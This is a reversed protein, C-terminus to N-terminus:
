VELYDLEKPKLTLGTGEDYYEPNLVMVGGYDTLADGLIQVQYGYVCVTYAKVRHLWDALFEPSPTGQGALEAILEAGEAYPVVVDRTNSDFVSFVSGAWRFAQNLSFRGAFPSSDDWCRPNESLLEFLTTNTDEVPFDQAGQKASAYLKRYYQRISEDYSLDNQFREPNRRFRGLLYEAADKADKIDPLRGLEKGEETQLANSHHELIISDDDLYERIVAANQELISLLPSTFILRRKGWKRAHALAYRLSSLTKGAGTPVNLRYVGSPREAFLRCQDSIRGRAEDIPKNRFFRGLKEEVRTLYQDWFASYEEPEPPYEVRNMFKATDRRDGEIVASLLLRALLSLYFSAESPDAQETLANIKEYVPELQANARDFREDLEELSACQELFNRLSEEYDIDEKEMRRLFGSRGERNVCDFLGHHSGVAFAILEATLDRSTESKEGHYRELIMRCAASSHDVSGRSGIGYRIYDSFARRAKGMDHILGAFYGVEGLGVCELCARAGLATGRCHEAVSQEELVGDPNKRIHACFDM